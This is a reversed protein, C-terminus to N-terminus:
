KGDLTRLAESTAVDMIDRAVSGSEDYSVTQAYHNSPADAVNNYLSISQNRKLNFLKADARVENVTSVALGTDYDESDYENGVGDFSVRWNGKFRGTDEPSEPMAARAADGISTAIIGSLDDEISDFVDDFM